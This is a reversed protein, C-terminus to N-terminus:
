QASMRRITTVPIIEGRLEMDVMRQHMADRRERYRSMWDEFAPNGRLPNLLPTQEVSFGFFDINFVGDTKELSYELIDLARDKNGLRVQVGAQLYITSKFFRVKELPLLPELIASADFGPDSLEKSLVEMITLVVSFFPLAAGRAKTENLLSRMQIVYESAKRSEKLGLNAIMSLRVIRFTTGVSEAVDDLQQLAEAYRMASILRKANLLKADDSDDRDMMLISIWDSARNDDTANTWSDVMAKLGEYSGPSLQLLKSVQRAAEDPRGQSGILLESLDNYYLGEDPAAVVALMMQEIAEETRGLSLLAFHKQRYVTNQSPDIEHARTFLRLSEEPNSAVQIGLGSMASASNPNLELARRFHRAAKLTESNRHEMWGMAEHAVALNPDLKLAEEAAQRSNRVYGRYDEVSNSTFALENYHNSINAWAAAYQPDREVAQLALQLPEWTEAKVDVMKDLSMDLNRSRMLLDYAEPNNTGNRLLRQQEENSINVQLQKVIEGAVRDQIAFINDMSDDFSQSWLHVGDATNILQAIIRVQDGARQVSGELVTSVGLIKGIERIDRNTGKFQFSSNRAIVKLDSIQALKHLLTDALGDAFYQDSQDGSFNEFPLVAISKGISSAQETDAPIPQEAIMPEPVPETSAEQFRSEWVFYVLAILLLATISRDLKKSTTGTISESRDIASERKIGDPTVEFAWSFFIILLFGLALVLLIAQMVWAPASINDLVLDAVQALVWGAILYAIGVRFVNRRQLERFL